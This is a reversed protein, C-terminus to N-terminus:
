VNEPSAMTAWEVMGGVMRQQGNEQGNGLSEKHGDHYDSTALKHYHSMIFASFAAYGCSSATCNCLIRIPSKGCFPSFPKEKQNGVQGPWELHMFFLHM